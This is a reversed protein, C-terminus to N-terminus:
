MCVYLFVKFWVIHLHNSYQLESFEKDEQLKMNTSSLSM